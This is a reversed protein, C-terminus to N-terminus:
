SIAKRIPILLDIVPTDPVPVAPDSHYLELVPRDDPELGSQPLWGGFLTQLTPAILAYSGVLTHAAYVGGAVEHRELGDHDSVNSLLVLGAM